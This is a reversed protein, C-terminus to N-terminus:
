GPGFNGLFCDAPHGQLTDSLDYFYDSTSLRECFAGLFGAKGPKKAPWSQDWIEWALDPHGTYILDLMARWLVPPVDKDWAEDSKISAITSDLQARTPAPKSMLDLALHYEVYSNEEAKPRLIVTPAPSEAFSTHWYAFAWDDAIFEYKADHNIDEFHAGGSDKADLTALVKFEKGLQLVQFGFCCHAGGSWSGVLVEPQGSGTIDTGPKIEPIGPGGEINNGIYYASADNKRYIVEAAKRVELCGQYEGRITRVAYQQITM